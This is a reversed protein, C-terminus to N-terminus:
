DFHTTVAPDGPLGLYKVSITTGSSIQTSPFYGGLSL